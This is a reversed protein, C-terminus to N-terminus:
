SVNWLVQWLFLTILVMSLLIWLLGALRTAKQVVLLVGLGTIVTLMVIFLGNEGFIITAIIALTAIFGTGFIEQLEQKM